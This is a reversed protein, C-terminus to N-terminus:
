IISIRLALLSDKQSPEDSAASVSVVRPTASTNSTSSIHSCRRYELKEEDITRLISLVTKINGTKLAETV